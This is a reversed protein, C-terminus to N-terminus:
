GILNLTLYGSTIANSSKSLAWLKDGSAFSVEFDTSQGQNLLANDDSLAAAAGATAAKRIGIPEGFTCSVKMKTITNALATAGGIQVWTGGAAAINTSSCDHFRTEKVAGASSGIGSVYIPTLATNQPSVDLCQKTGVLTGTAAKKLNNLWVLM